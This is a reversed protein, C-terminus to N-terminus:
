MDAVLNCIQTEYCIVLAISLGRIKHRASSSYMYTAANSASNPEAVIFSRVM